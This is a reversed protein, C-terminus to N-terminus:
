RIGSYNNRGTAKFILLPSNTADASEAYRIGMGEHITDDFEMLLLGLTIVESAYEM